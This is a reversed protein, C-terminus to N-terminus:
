HTTMTILATTMTNKIIFPWLSLDKVIVSQGYGSDSRDILPWLSLDKVIVSQGYGSDSRDILPWLSLTKTWLTITQLRDYHHSNKTFCLIMLTDMNNLSNHIM